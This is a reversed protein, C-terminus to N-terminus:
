QGGLYKKLDPALAEAIEPQTMNERTVLAAGTDIRREVQSGRVADVATKVGLYGMRLPNQVVLAAIDGSQLAALLESSSDFGVFIAKGALGRSRLALLMGYTSSENPCYVADFSENAMLLNEAAEQATARTAGAYRHPDILTIGSHKSVADIFGQERQMTSESGEMYRLILVKGTGNIASALHEGALEGGRHNDTAVFSVFDEGAKANLGSDIIVVPVGSATTQRVPEVLAQQDLPALVIADYGSSQLNQLLAIQQERDDERDPGRFTIEVDPLEQQAKIAGAHVSKWFEHTTGKPVVAIRLTKGPAGPAGDPLPM